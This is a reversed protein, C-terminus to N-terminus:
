VFREFHYPDPRPHIFDGGWRNLPDLSKWYDGLPQMTEISTIDKGDKILIFDEALSNLHQSQVKGVGGVADAYPITQSDPTVALIKSGFPLSNAWAQLPTRQREKAVIIAGISNAYEVAKDELKSIDQFFKWQEQSLSM